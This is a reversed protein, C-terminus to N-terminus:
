AQALMVCLGDGGTAVVVEMVSSQAQQLVKAAGLPFFPRGGQHM